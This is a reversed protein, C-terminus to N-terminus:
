LPVRWGIWIWSTVLIKGLAFLGNEIGNPVAIRLIKKVLNADWALIGRWSIHVPNKERFAMAALIGAGSVCSLSTPVAVGAVGAHFVFIGIANGAINIFNVLVSVYLLRLQFRTM